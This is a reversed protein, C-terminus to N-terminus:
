RDALEEVFIQADPFRSAWAEEDSEACFRGAVDSPHAGCRGSCAIWALAAVGATM